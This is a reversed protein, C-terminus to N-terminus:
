PRNERGCRGRKCPLVLALALSPSGVPGRSGPQLAVGWTQATCVEVGLASGAHRRGGGESLLDWGSRGGGQAKGQGGRRRFAVRARGWQGTSTEGKGDGRQCERM